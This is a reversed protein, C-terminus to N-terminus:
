TSEPEPKLVAIAIGLVRIVEKSSIKIERYPEGTEADNHESVPQLTIAGKNKRFLKLTAEVDDGIREVLVIDGDQADDQAQILVYDGDDINEGTMSRGHVGVIAYNGTRKLRIQDRGQLPISFHAVGGIALGDVQAWDMESPDVAEWGGAPVSPFVPLRVGERRRKRPHDAPRSERAPERETAPRQRVTRRRRHLPPNPTYTNRALTTYVSRGMLELKIQYWDPVYRSLTHFPYALEQLNVNSQYFHDYSRHRFKPYQPYCWCAYALMWQTVAFHHKRRVYRCAAEELLEIALGGLEMGFAMLASVVFVEPKEWNAWVLEQYDRDHKLEMGKRFDRVMASFADTDNHARHRKLRAIFTKGKAGIRSGELGVILRYLDFLVSM